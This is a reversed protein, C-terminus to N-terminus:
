DKQSNEVIHESGDSLIENLYPIVIDKWDKVTLFVGKKTMIYKDSNPYRQHIRLDICQDGNLLCKRAVVHRYAASIVM